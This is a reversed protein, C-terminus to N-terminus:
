APTARAPLDRFDDSRALRQVASFLKEPPVIFKRVQLDLWGGTSTVRASLEGKRFFENRLIFRRGDESLGALQMTVTMEDLLRIERFYDVEDRLVVPGFHLRDFEAVPFGCDTFYTIRVDVSKDLYATNRMHANADIDGWGAVLKREYM